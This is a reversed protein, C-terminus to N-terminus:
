RVLCCGDPRNYSARRGKDDPWASFPHCPVALSDAIREIREALADLAAAAREEAEVFRGTRRM